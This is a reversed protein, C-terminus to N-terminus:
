NQVAAHRYREDSFLRALDMLSAGPVESLTRIGLRGFIESRIGWDPFMAKFTRILVDARVDPDGGHLVDLGAVARTDDGADLVVIRDAHEPKVRELITTLLDGKPDIVVGGHGSEIGSLILNALVVSKGVGSPGIVLVHHTAAEDSLAVPREGDSDRGVLLRRGHRPVHRPVLVERAAGVEVGPVAVDSGLPWGTIGM